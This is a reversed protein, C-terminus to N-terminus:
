GRPGRRRRCTGASGPGPETQSIGSFLGLSSPPDVAYWESHRGWNMEVGGKFWLTQHIFGIFILHVIFTHKKKKAKM